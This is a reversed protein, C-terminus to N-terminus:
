AHGASFHEYGSAETEFVSGDPRLLRMGTESTIRSAVAFWSVDTYTRTYRSSVGLLSEM